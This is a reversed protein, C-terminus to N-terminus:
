RLEFDAPAHFIDCYAAVVGLHWVPLLDLRHAAHRISGVILRRIVTTIRVQSHVHKKQPWRPRRLSLLLAIFVVRIVEEPAIAADVGDNVPSQLSM